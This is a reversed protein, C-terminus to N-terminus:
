LNLPQGFALREETKIKILIIGISRSDFDSAKINQEQAFFVQNLPQGFALREETKIKIL